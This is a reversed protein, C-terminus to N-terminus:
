KQKIQQLRTLAKTPVDAESVQEWARVDGHRYTVKLYANRKLPRTKNGYFGLKIEQGDANVGPLKYYYDSLTNGSDDKFEKYEGTTTIQTYYADGSRFYKDAVFFGAVIVSLVIVLIKLLKKM